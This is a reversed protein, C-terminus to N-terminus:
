RLFYIGPLATDYLALVIVMAAIVALGLLLWWYWAGLLARWRSRGKEPPQNV